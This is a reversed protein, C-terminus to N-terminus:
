KLHIPLGNNFFACKRFIWEIVKAVQMLTLGWVVSVFSQTLIHSDYFM